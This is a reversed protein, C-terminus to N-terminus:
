KIKNLFGKISDYYDKVNGRPAAPLVNYINHRDSMAWIEEGLQAEYYRNLSDDEWVDKKGRADKFKFNFSSRNHEVDFYVGFKDKGSVPIEKELTAGDSVWAWLMPEMFKNRNDYHVRVKNWM